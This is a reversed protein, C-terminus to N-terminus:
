LRKQVSQMVTSMFAYWETKKTSYGANAIIALFRDPNDQYDFVDQYRDDFSILAAFDTFSNLANNYCKFYKRVWYHYWNTKLKTISIIVPYKVNPTTHYEETKLLQRQGPNGNFWSYGFFNFGPSNKGWGSEGAAITLTIIFPIGWEKEIYKAAPLYTQIFKEPTM